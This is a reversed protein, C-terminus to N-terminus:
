FPATVDADVLFNWVRRAPERVSRNTPRMLWFKEETTCEIAFPAVLESTSDLLRRHALAVGCGYAALRLTSIQTDCWLSRTEDEVAEVGAQALWAPWGLTFGTAHLLTQGALDAPSGLQEAVQPACVPAMSEAGLSAQVVDTRNGYSYCIEIDADEGIFNEAWVSTVLHLGIDPHRRHLAALRPALWYHQLAPTTRITVPTDPEPGFVEATGQELRSFAEQVSPLWARGAETLTLSQPHRIFLAQGLRAELLRIRQSIASQSVCLEQGAQTFNLTRAAAEFAQLWHPPPLRQM